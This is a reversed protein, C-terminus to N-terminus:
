GRVTRLLDGDRSHRQPKDPQDGSPQKQLRAAIALVEEDSMEVIRPALQRAREVEEETEAGFYLAFIAALKAAKPNQDIVNDPM